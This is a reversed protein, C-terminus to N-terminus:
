PPSEWLDLPEAPQVDYHNYCLMTKGEGGSDAYVVPHGNTPLVQAEFGAGTLLERVFNAADEIGEGKSSVSPIATLRRLDELSEALHDEIYQEIESLVDAM